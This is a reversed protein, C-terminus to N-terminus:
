IISQVLSINTAKNRMAFYQKLRHGDPTVAGKVKIYRVRAIDVVRLLYLTVRKGPM